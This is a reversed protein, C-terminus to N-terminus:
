SQPYPPSAEPCWQSARVDGVIGCVVRTVECHRHQFDHNQVPKFSFDAALRLLPFLTKASFSSPNTELYFFSKTELVWKEPPVTKRTKMHPHIYLPPTHTSIFVPKRSLSLILLLHSCGHSSLSIQSESLHFANPMAFIWNLKVARSNLKEVNAPLQPKLFVNILCM